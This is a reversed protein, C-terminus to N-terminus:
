RVVMIFGKIRNVVEGVSLFDTGVRQTDWNAQVWDKTSCGRRVRLEDVQYSPFGSGRPPPYGGVLGM